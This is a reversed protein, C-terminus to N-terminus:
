APDKEQLFSSPVFTTTLFDLAGKADAVIYDIEQDLPNNWDAAVDLLGDTATTDKVAVAAGGDVPVEDFTNLMQIGFFAVAIAATAMGAMRLWGGSNSDSRSAQEALYDEEALQKLVRATLNGSETPPTDNPLKKLDRTLEAGFDRERSLSEDKECALDLWAPLPKESVEYWNIAFKFLLKKM